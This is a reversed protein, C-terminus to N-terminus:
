ADERSEDRGDEDDDGPDDRRDPQPHGLLRQGIRAHELKGLVPEALEQQERHDRKEQEMCRVANVMAQVVQAHVGTGAGHDGGVASRQEARQNRRVQQERDTKSTQARACLWPLPFMFQFAMAGMATAMMMANIGAGSPSACCAQYKKAMKTPTMTPRMNSGSGPPAIPSM